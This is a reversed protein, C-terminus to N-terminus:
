KVVQDLQNNEMIFVHVLNMQAEEEQYLLTLFDKRQLTVQAACDIMNFM